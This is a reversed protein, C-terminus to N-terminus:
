IAERYNEGVFGYKPTQAIKKANHLLVLKRRIHAKRTLYKSGANRRQGKGLIGMIWFEKYSFDVGGAVLKTARRRQRWGGGAMAAM